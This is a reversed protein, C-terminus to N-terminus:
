RAIQRLYYHYVGFETEVDLGLLGKSTIMIKGNESAIALKMLMIFKDVPFSLPAITSNTKAATLRMSGSHTSSAEEGFAVNVNGNEVSINFHKDIESYLGAFQQFETLTDKTLDDIEVEWPIESVKAQKPVYRSDMLNFQSKSGKGKFQLQSPMDVDDVKRTLVKFTAEQFHSFNLLGSLMKLNTIGFEGKFEPIESKINGVVYLTKDEDHCQVLVDRDTGTIKIVEVGGLNCYKIIEALVKQASM